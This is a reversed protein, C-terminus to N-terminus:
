VSQKFPLLYSHELDKTTLPKSFYFGQVEECHISKLFNLQEITEVGEVVVSLNFHHSLDIIAKLMATDNFNGPVEIIFPRAIKLQNLPYNKVYSLSSYGTGFDDISIQIGMAAIEHLQATLCEENNMAVSETIEIVLKDAPFVATELLVSIKSCLNGQAFQQPSLNVSLRPPAIGEKEWENFQHIATKMVLDDIQVILDFEEALPIFEGPSIVGHKTHEWRVLAEVGSFAGTHIDFQPQYYVLFENRKIAAHLDTLLKMKGVLEQDMEPSYFVVKSKRDEKAKYMALDAHKMLEEVSEGHEPYISVGMSVTISLEKGRIHFPAEITKMIAATLEKIEDEYYLTDILIAFEDGGHRAMFAETPLCSKIREIVHLLLQDGISHGLTDNVHKLRDVDLFILSVMTRSQSSELIKWEIMQELYRRNPLRSFTDHRAIYDIQKFADELDKHSDTLEQTREGIKKELHQNFLKLHKVLSQNQIISIIDRCIVLIFTAILSGFLIDNARYVFLFEYLLIFVGAYQIIPRILEWHAYSLTFRDQYQNLLPSKKRHFASAIMFIGLGDLLLYKERVLSGDLLDFLMLTDAALCILLGSFLGNLIRQNIPKDVILFLTALIFVVYLVGLPYFVTHMPVGNGAFKEYTVFSIAGLVTITIHLDFLLYSMQFNSRVKTLVFVLGYSLLLIHLIWFADSIPDLQGNGNFVKIFESAGYFVLSASVCNILVKTLQNRRAAGRFLIWMSSLLLIGFIAIIIATFYPTSDGLFLFLSFLILLIAGVGIRVQSLTM